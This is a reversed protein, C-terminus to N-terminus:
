PASTGGKRPRSAKRGHKRAALAELAAAGARLDGAMRRPGASPHEGLFSCGEYRDALRDQADADKRMRDVQSGVIGPVGEPSWGDLRAPM